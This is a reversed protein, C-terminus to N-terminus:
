SGIKGYSNQRAFLLVFRAETGTFPIYIFFQDNRMTYKQLVDVKEGSFFRTLYDCDLSKTCKFYAPTYVENQRDWGFNQIRYFALKNAFRGSYIVTLEPLDSRQDQLFSQIEIIRKYDQGKGSALLRGTEELISNNARLVDDAQARVVGLYREKSLYTGVFILCVLATAVAFFTVSWKRLVGSSPNIKLESIKADAILSVNTAVNLLVLVAAVGILGAFVATLFSTTTERFPNIQLGVCVVLVLIGLLFLATVLTLLSLTTKAIHAKTELQM